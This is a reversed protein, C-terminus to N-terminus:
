RINQLPRGSDDVFAENIKGLVDLGEGVQMSCHMCVLWTVCAHMVNCQLNAKPRPSSLLLWAPIVACLLQLWADTFTSHVCTSQGCFHMKVVNPQQESCYQVCRDVHHMGLM